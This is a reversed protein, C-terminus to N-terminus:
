SNGALLQMACRVIASAEYPKRVTPVDSFAQPIAGGEGYGTAFMFPIGEGALRRAIPESTADGLNVDLIALDPRERDLAAFAERPSNATAIVTGNAQELILELDMAVLMQDEVVLIRVGSLDGTLYAPTAAQPVTERILKERVAVFRSPIRFRALVGGPRYEISSEGGLDYPVSREILTSGFGRRSPPAVRLGTTESWDILCDGVADVSWSVTLDGGARALAGYKAANTALEHLALAMISYARADMWVDPGEFVITSQGTQYPILEATLLDSLQGGGGGRIVQDHALSLAQIRGRLTDVYGKLTEGDETPHNVLSKIVALINKVRHNLEENLVRQRIEAKTREDALLESHQLAVEVLAARAAEGFKREVETWPESQQRVTEKWIAFSKRPTLRDGLPGTEYTKEPNGGWDLTHVLERRFFFLYDRPRQSLPVILVGAVDEAYAEAGPLAASLHHTAWISGEAATRAFRVLEPMADAPPTAGTAKWQGDIWIGQGDCAIFQGFEDLRDRLVESIHELGSAQRLFGDLMVRARTATELSQKHHLAHLHLSMFEGFMEAAVRQAMTLTRPSYHHCAILGWLAGDVIISISMSAGVGMNRLYECHIPSVSRLHAFSLDLPEGSADLEPVVPVRDCNADSIIRITNKLYLARAQQPIDSAPFYQGLFSELDARKAESLVKGAGDPGFQYIMVRDYGLMAQVLRAADSVLRKVTAAASVRAIMTRALELPAATDADAAELEVIAAGKYRHAAIDFCRGNPLEKSFVLAPRSGEPARALANRVDHTVKPGLIADLATGNIEGDFGLMEGANASHRRVQSGSADCALLCGHPQISGPVHIPERDCNTLDVPKLQNM